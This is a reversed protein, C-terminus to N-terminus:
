HAEAGTVYLTKEGYAIYMHLQRLVSIGLMLDSEGHDSDPYKIIDIDPNHIEVGDLTLVSFPYRYAAVAVIGNIGREGLSKLQPNKEDLGFLEHATRFNMFSRAAGTDLMASLQKGDLTVSATLHHNRDLEIPVAAYNENTWYVVKGPCHDQSFLSFKGGAFDLDADFPSLVDAGLMGMSDTELVSSPALVFGFHDSPLPGLMFSHTVTFQTLKIGGGLIVYGSTMPRPTLGVSKAFSEDLTSYAAGIDVVLSAPHNEISVPVSVRGDRGVQTDLVMVRKLQCQPPDAFASSIAMTAWLVSGLLLAGLKSRIRMAAAESRRKGGAM